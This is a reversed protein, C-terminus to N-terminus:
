EPKWEGLDKILHSYVSSVFAPVNQEADTNGDRRIKDCVYKKKRLHHLVENLMWEAGDEFGLSRLRRDCLRPSQSVVQEWQSDYRCMAHRIKLRKRSKAM